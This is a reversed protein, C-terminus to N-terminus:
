LPMPRNEFGAVVERPILRSTDIGRARARTVIDEIWGRNKQPNHYASFVEEPDMNDVVGNAVIVANISKAIAAEVPM